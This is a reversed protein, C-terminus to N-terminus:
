RQAGSRQANYAADSAAPSFWDLSSRLAVVNGVYLIAPSTLGAANVKGAIDGLTGAVCLQADTTGAMVVAAPTAAPRGHQM